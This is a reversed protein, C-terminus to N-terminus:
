DGYEIHHRLRQLGAEIQRGLIGRALLGTLPGTVTGAFETTISVTVLAGDEAPTVEILADHRTGHLSRWVLTDPSPREVLVRGGVHITGVIVFLEWEQSGDPHRGLYSLRGLAGIIPLVASPDTAVKAVEDVPRHILVCGRATSM